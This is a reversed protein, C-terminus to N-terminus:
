SGERKLHADPDQRDHAEFLAPRGPSLRGRIGDLDSINDGNANTASYVQGPDVGLGHLLSAIADLNRPDSSLVHVEPIALEDRAYLEFEITPDQPASTRFYHLPGLDDCDEGLPAGATSALVGLDCEITFYTEQM